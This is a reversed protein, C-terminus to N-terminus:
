SNKRYSGKYFKRKIDQQYVALLGAPCSTLVPSTWNGRAVNSAKSAGYFHYALM